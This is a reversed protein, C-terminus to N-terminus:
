WLPNCLAWSSPGTRLETLNARAEELSRGESKLIAPKMRIISGEKAVGGKNIPPIEGYFAYGYDTKDVVVATVIDRDNIDLADWCGTATLTILLVTIFVKLLRKTRM